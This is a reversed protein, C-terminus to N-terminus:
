MTIIEIDPRREKIYGNLNTDAIPPHFTHPDDAPNYNFPARIIYVANQDSAKMIADIYPKWDTFHELVESLIVTKYKNRLAPQIEMGQKKFRYMAFERTRGRDIYTLDRFGLEYLIFIDTGVGGGFDLAPEQAHAKMLQVRSETLTSLNYAATEYRTWLSMDYFQEIYFNELKKDKFFNDFEINLQATAHKFRMQVEDITLGDFAALDEILQHKYLEINM